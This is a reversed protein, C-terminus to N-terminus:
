PAEDAGERPTSARIHMHEGHKGFLSLVEVDGQGASGFWHPNETDFEAVEGPGLTLDLDGLVLRLRGHLVYLWEHGAHSRPTPDKQDAPITMKYAQPGEHHRSLRVYLRGGTQQQRQPMRPDVVRPPAVLDDLPTALAVSIPLLLELSPKRRGSELRSLTSKSIGTREGLEALTLARKRRARRLRAPVQDLTSAVAPNSDM